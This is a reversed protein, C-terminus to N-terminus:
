FSISFEEGKIFNGLVRLLVIDPNDDVTLHEIDSGEQWVVWSSLLGNHEVGATIGSLLEVHKVVRLDNWSIGGVRDDTSQFLLGTSIKHM